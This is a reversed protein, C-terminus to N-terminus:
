VRQMRYGTSLSLRCSYIDNRRFTQERAKFHLIHLDNDQTMTQRFNKFKKIDHGYAMHPSMLNANSLLSGPCNNQHMFKYKLMQELLFVEKLPVQNCPYKDHVNLELFTLAIRPIIQYNSITTM